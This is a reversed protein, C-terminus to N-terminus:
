RSTSGDGAMRSRVRERVEDDPMGPNATRVGPATLAYAKRILSRMVALKRAPSMRRLVEVEEDGLDAGRVSGREDESSERGSAASGPRENEPRGSGSPESVIGSPESMIGYPVSTRGHEAM